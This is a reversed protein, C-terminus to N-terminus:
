MGIRVNHDWVDMSQIIAVYAMYINNAMKFRAKEDNLLYNSNGNGQGSALGREGGGHDYM